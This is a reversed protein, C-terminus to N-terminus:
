YTKTQGVRVNLTTKTSFLLLFMLSSLTLSKLHGLLFSAWLLVASKKWQNMWLVKKMDTVPQIQLKEGQGAESQSLECLACSREGCCGSFKLRNFRNNNMGWCHPAGSPRLCPALSFSLSPFSPPYFFSAAITAFLYFLVAWSRRKTCFIFM